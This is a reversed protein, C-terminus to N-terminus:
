RLGQQAFLERLDRSAPPPSAVVAGPNSDRGASKNLATAVLQQQQQAQLKAPVVERYARFWMRLPDAQAVTQMLEQQRKEIDARHDAFGPMERLEEALPRNREVYDATQKKAEQMAAYQKQLEMLPAYREASRREWQQERWAERKAQQEASYFRVEQGNADRGVLDPAPEPEAQPEPAAQQQPRRQAALLRGAESRLQQSLDPHAQLEQGLRMFTGIPDANFQEQWSIAGGYKQQFQQVAEEAAKKRTSELVAKHREFPIPGATEEAVPEVPPPEETAPAPADVVPTEPAASAEEGVGFQQFAETLSPSSAPQSSPTSPAPASEAAAPAANATAALGGALDSM